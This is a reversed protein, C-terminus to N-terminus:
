RLLSQLRLGSLFLTTGTDSVDANDNGNKDDDLTFYLSSFSNPHIAYLTECDLGQISYDRGTQGVSSRRFPKNNLIGFYKCSTYFIKKKQIPIENLANTVCRRSRLDLLFFVFLCFLVFFLFLFFFFPSFTFTNLYGM